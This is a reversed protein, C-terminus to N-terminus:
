ALDGILDTTQDVAPLEPRSGAEWGLPIQRM